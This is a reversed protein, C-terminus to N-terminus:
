QEMPTKLASDGDVLDEEELEKNDLDEEDDVVYKYKALDINTVLVSNIYVPLAPRFMDPGSTAATKVLSIQDLNELGEVVEGFVTFLGDLEPMDALCVLFQSGATDPDIKLRWMSVAGRKHTIDNPEAKIMYGPGGLGDGRPDGMVVMRGKDVRHIMLSEYFGSLALFLMNRSHRPAKEPLLRFKFTGMNTDVEIRLRALDELDASNAVHRAIGDIRKQAMLALKSDPFENIFRRFGEITGADGAIRWNKREIRLRALTRYKGDPHKKLYQLFGEVTNEEKAKKWDWGDCGGAALCLSIM